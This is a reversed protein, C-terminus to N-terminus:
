NEGSYRSDSVKVIFKIFAIFDLSFLIVRLNSSKFPLKECFDPILLISALSPQYWWGQFLLHRASTHFKLQIYTVSITITKRKVEKNYSWM